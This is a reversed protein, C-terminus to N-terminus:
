LAMPFLRSVAIRQITDREFIESINWSGFVEGYSNRCIKRSLRIDDCDKMGERSQFCALYRRCPWTDNGNYRERTNTFYKFLQLSKELLKQLDQLLCMDDFDREKKWRNSLIVYRAIWNVSVVYTWTHTYADMFVYVRAYMCACVRLYMASLRM